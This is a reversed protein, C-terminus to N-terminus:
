TQVMLVVSSWDRDAWPYWGTVGEPLRAELVLVLGLQAPRGAALLELDVRHTPHGARQLRRRGRGPVLTTVLM